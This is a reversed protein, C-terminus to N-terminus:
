LSAFIFFLAFCRLQLSKPSSLTAKPQLFSFNIIANARVLMFLLALMEVNQIFPSKCHLGGELWSRSSITDASMFLHSKESKTAKKEKSSAKQRMPSFSFKWSNKSSIGHTSQGLNTNNKLKKKTKWGWEVDIETHVSSIEFRILLLSVKDRQRAAFLNFNFSWSLNWSAIRNIITLYVPFTELRMASAVWDDVSKM